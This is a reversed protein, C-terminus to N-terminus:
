RVRGAKPGDAAVCTNLTAMGSFQMAGRKMRRLHFFKRETEEQLVSRLLACATRLVVNDGIQGAARRDDALGLKRVIWKFSRPM